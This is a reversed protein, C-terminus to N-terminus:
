WPNWVCQALCRASHFLDSDHRWAIEARRACAYCAQRSCCDQSYKKGCNIRHSEGLRNSLLAVSVHEWHTFLCFDQSRNQYLSYPIHNQMRARKGCLRIGLKGIGKMEGIKKALFNSRKMRASVRQSAVNLGRIDAKLWKSQYLLDPSGVNSVDAVWNPKGTFCNRLMPKM